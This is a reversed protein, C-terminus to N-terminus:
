KINSVPNLIEKLNVKMEDGNDSLSVAVAYVLERSQTGANSHM